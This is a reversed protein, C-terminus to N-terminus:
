FTSKLIERSSKIDCLEPKDICGAGGNGYCYFGCVPCIINQERYIAPASCSDMDCLIGDVYSACGKKKYIDCQYAPDNAKKGFSMRIFNIIKKIM